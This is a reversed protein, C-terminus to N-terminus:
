GSSPIDTKNTSSIGNYRRYPRGKWADAKGFWFRRASDITMLTYLFGSVPLLISKWLSVRYWKLIPCFSLSLLLWAIANTGIAVTNLETQTSISANISLAISLASLVVPCVYLLVMGLVTGILLLPSYHLQVFASRAVMDWISRLNSAARLSTVDDGLGLWLNGGRTQILQALSCDDILAGAMSQLGDDRAVLNRRVLISGGAAAATRRRPNSVWQFPYLMAFFYVFAPILIAAWFGDIDLRVMLSVLDARADLSKRVLTAISRRPHLIDADTFLVYEVDDSVRQLGTQLAWVKGTWDDPLEPAAVVSIRDAHGSARAIEVAVRPTDDESHDDVLIVSFKGDYAQALLSPLTKPLMRAENRAPVIVCVSPQSHDSNTQEESADSHLRLQTRWYGGRLIFLWIWALCGVIGISACIYWM